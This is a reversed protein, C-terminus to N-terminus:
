ENRIVVGFEDCAQQTVSGRMKFSLRIPGQTLDRQEATRSTIIISYVIQGGFGTATRDLAPKSQREGAPITSELQALPM